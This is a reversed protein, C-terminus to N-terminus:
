LTFGRKRAAYALALSAGVLYLGLLGAKDGTQPINVPVAQATVFRLAAGYAAGEGNVAYARVYYATNAELGTLVSAFSGTGAGSAAKLGNSLTVNESKGYVFGRGTVTMGGDLLVNGKVEASSETVGGVSVTEVAPRAGGPAGYVPEQPGPTVAATTFSRNKGYATGAANTAYARVYYTTDPSLSTLSASFSQATGSGSVAPNPLAPDQTLGYAFGFATIQGGGDSTVRGSLAAGTKTVTSPDIADTVVTPIAPLAPDPEAEGNGIRVISEYQGNYVTYGQGDVTDYDDPLRPEGDLMLYDAEPATVTGDVTVMSKGTQNQPSKCVVGAGAGQQPMVTVNGKIRAGGGMVEGMTAFVAKADYGQASVDGNVTIFGYDSAYIGWCYNGDAMVNGNVVAQGFEAEVGCVNNGYAAVNGYVTIKSTSENRVSAGCAFDGLVIIAAGAANDVTVKGGLAAVVGEVNSGTMNVQGNVDVRANEGEACAGVSLSLDFGTTQINGNVTVYSNTGAYAGFASNHSIVVGSVSVQGGFGARVGYEGGWVTFTGPANYGVNGKEGVMLAASDGDTHTDITLDYGGLDFTIEANEIVVPAYHIVNRLLKITAAGLSEAASIALDLSAYETAGIACANLPRVYTYSGGSAIDSDAYGGESEAIAQVSFTYDATAYSSFIGLGFAYETGATIRTELPHPIGEKYLKVQYDQANAVADWKATMTGDSTTDEWALNTPTALKTKPTDAKASSLFAFSSFIFCAALAAAFIKNKKFRIRM